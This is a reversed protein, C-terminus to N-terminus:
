FNNDEELPLTQQMEDHQQDHELMELRRTIIQQEYHTLIQDRLEDIFALAVEAEDPSWYTNVRMVKWSM